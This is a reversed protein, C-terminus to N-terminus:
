WLSSAIIIAAAWENNVWELCLTWGCSVNHGGARSMHGGARSMNHKVFWTGLLM